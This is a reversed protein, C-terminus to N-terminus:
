ELIDGALVAAELVSNLEARTELTERKATLFSESSFALLRKLKENEQMAMDFAFELIRVRSSLTMQSPHKKRPTKTIKTQLETM